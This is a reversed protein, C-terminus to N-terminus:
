NASLTATNAAGNITIGSSSVVTGVNTTSGAINLDGTLTGGTLPLKTADYNMSENMLWADGDYTFSVIAGANWAEYISSGPAIIAFRYINKAGTNNVNLTPNAVTNSETFKVHITVGSKLTDFNSMTVEKAATSAETACTGYLSSGVPYTNNGIHVDTVYGM